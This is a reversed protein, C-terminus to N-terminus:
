SKKKKGSRKKEALRMEKKSSMIGAALAMLAIPLVLPWPIGQFIM